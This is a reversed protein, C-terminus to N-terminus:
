SRRHEEPTATLVVSSARAAQERDWTLLPVGEQQAVAVYTADAGRLRLDSALEATRLLLHPTSHVWRVGPTRLVISIAQRGDMAPDVRRSVAGAVEALLLPPAVIERGSRAWSALWAESPSYFADSYVLASIWVSADLM